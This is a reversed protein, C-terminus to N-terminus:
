VETVGTLCGTVGMFFSMRCPCTGKFRSSGSDVEPEFIVLVPRFAYHICIGRAQAIREECHASDSARGRELLSTALMQAERPGSGLDNAERSQCTVHTLSTMRSPTRRRRSLQLPRIQWEESLPAPKKPSPVRNNSCRGVSYPFLNLSFNPM